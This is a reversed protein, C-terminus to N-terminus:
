DWGNEKYSGNDFQIAEISSSLYYEALSFWSSFHVLFHNSLVGKGQFPLPQPPTWTIRAVNTFTILGIQNPALILPPLRPPSLFALDDIRGAYLYRLVDSVRLISQAVINM